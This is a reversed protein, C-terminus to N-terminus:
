GSCEEDPVIGAHVGGSMVARCWGQRSASAIRNIRGDGCPDGVIVLHVGHHRVPTDQWTPYSQTSGLRVSMGAAAGQDPMVPHGGAVM